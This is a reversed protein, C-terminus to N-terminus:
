ETASAPSDYMSGVRNRGERKAKYLCADAAAILDDSNKYTNKADFTALGVSITVQLQKGEYAFHSEDILKRIREAFPLAAAHSLGRLLFVFEEGGYRAFVDYGRIGKELITALRKLVYDGAPHGHGDNLKKFHDIDFIVLSLAVGHRESYNFEKALADMLYRKNYIRTLGDKIAMNRLQKHYEADIDDQYCFKLTTTGLHIKDGDKLVANQVATGNLETGNTSRLDALTFGEGQKQVMAHRRSVGTDAIVVDADDDRGLIVTQKELSYIEGLYDGEIMILCPQKASPKKAGAPQKFQVKTTEKM